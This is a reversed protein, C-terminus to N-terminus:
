AHKPPKRHKPAHHTATVHKGHKRKHKSRANAPAAILSCMALALFIAFLKSHWSTM